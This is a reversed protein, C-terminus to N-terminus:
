WRCMVLMLCLKMCFVILNIFSEQTTLDWSLWKQLVFHFFRNQIKSSTATETSSLPWSKYETVLTYNQGLIRGESFPGIFGHGFILELGTFCNM